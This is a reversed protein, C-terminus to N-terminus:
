RQRVHDVIREAAKQPVGHAVLADVVAQRGVDNAEAVQAISRGDKLATVLEEAPIGITDAVVALLEQRHERREKVEDKVGAKVADAQAQTLTGDAVLEELVAGLIRRGPNRREQPADPAPQEQAGASSLPDLAAVTLGGTALTAAAVTSAILKKTSLKTIPM